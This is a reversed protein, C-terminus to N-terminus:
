VCANNRRKKSYSPLSVSIQFHLGLSHCAVLSSSSILTHNASICIPILWVELTISVLCLSNSTRNPQLVQFKSNNRPSFSDTVKLMRRIALQVSSIFYSGSYTSHHQLSQLYGGAQSGVAQTRRPQFTKKPGWLGSQRPM